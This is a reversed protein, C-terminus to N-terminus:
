AATKKTRSLEERVLGALDAALHGMPHKLEVGLRETLVLTTEIWFHANQFPAEGYRDMVRSWDQVLQRAAETLATQAKRLAKTLFGICLLPLAVGFLVTLAGIWIVADRLAGEREALSQINRLQADKATLAQERVDQLWAKAGVANSFYDTPAPLKATLGAEDAKAILREWKRIDVMTQSLAGTRPSAEVNLLAAAEDAVTQMHQQVGAYDRLKETLRFAGAYLLYATVVGTVVTLTAAVMSVVLLRKYFRIRRWLTSLNERIM